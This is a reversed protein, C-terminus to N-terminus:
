GLAREVRTRGTADPEEFEIAGLTCGGPANRSPHKAADEWHIFFPTNDRPPDLDVLQWHLTDGWPTKRSGPRPETTTLGHGGLRTRLAAIDPMAVAWGIPTLHELKALDK